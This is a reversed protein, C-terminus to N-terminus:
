SSPPLGVLFAPNRRFLLDLEAESFGAERLVRISLALADGHNHFGTLGSDSAVFCHEPGLTRIMQIFQDKTRGLLESAVVEVYGGLAVAQKLQDMTPDTFMPGMDPHTVIVREIGRRKAETMIQLMEGATVHGTGLTLGYHKILDLVDLVQPLLVGDRSVMVYPRNQGLVRVEHEADHTPMWVIRAYRGEVEAFYRVAQPNIGGEPVNLALGGFVELGPVDGYKRILWALGASESWHNKLVMGRMGREHMMKAIEFADWQRDFSDPGFHAHLDIAGTLIPDTLHQDVSPAPHRGRYAEWADRDSNESPYVISSPQPTWSVAPRPQPAEDAQAPAGAVGAILALGCLGNMWKRLAM